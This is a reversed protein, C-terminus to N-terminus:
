LLMNKYRNKSQSFFQLSPQFIQAIGQKNNDSNHVDQPKQEM